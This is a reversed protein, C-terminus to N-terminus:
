AERAEPAKDVHVTTAASPNQGREPSGSGAAVNGVSQNERSENALSVGTGEAGQTEM